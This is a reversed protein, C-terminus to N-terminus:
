GRPPARAAQPRAQAAPPPPPPTVIPAEDSAAVHLAYEAHRTLAPADADVPLTCFPCHAAPPLSRAPAEQDIARALRDRAGQPDPSCLPGHILQARSVSTWAHALSPVLAQLVFALCAIAALVRSRRGRRFRQMERAIIDAVSTRLEPPM